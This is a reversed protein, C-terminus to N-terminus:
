KRSSKYGSKSKRDSHEAKKTKKIDRKRRNETNKRQASREPNRVAEIKLALKRDKKGAAVKKAVKVKLAVFVEDGVFEALRESLSKALELCSKWIESSAQHRGVLATQVHDCLRLVPEAAEPVDCPLCNSLLLAAHLKLAANIVAASKAKRGIKGIKDTLVIVALPQSTQAASSLESTEAEETVISTEQETVYEEKTESEVEKKRGWRIQRETLFKGVVLLNKVISDELDEPKGKATTDSDAAELHNLFRSVLTVALKEDLLELSM